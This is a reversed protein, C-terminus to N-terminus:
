GGFVTLRVVVIEMDEARRTPVLVTKTDEYPEDELSGGSYCRSTIGQLWWRLAARASQKLAFLRPLHESAPVPEDRTFGKGRGDHAQPLFNGTSKQRIAYCEIVHSINDDMTMLDSSCV